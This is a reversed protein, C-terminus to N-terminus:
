HRQSEFNSPLPPEERGMLMQPRRADTDLPSCDTAEAMQCGRQSVSVGLDGQVGPSLASVKPIFASQSLIIPM